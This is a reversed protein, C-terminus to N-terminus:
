FHLLHEKEASYLAYRIQKFHESLEPEELKMLEELVRASEQARKYNALVIDFLSNRNMESKVSKKGIDTTADRSSLLAELKDYRCQHRLSKLTSAVSSLAQEYRAIDEAVRIGEKLRNLNADITRFYHTQM